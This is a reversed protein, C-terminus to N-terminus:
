SKCRALMFSRMQSFGTMPVNDMEKNWGEVGMEIGWDPAGGQKAEAESAVFEKSLMSASPGAARQNVLKMEKADGAVSIWLSTMTGIKLAVPAYELHGGVCELRLAAFGNRTKGDATAVAVLRGNDTAVKWAGIQTPAVPEARTASIPRAPVAVAAARAAPKTNEIASKVAKAFDLSGDNLAEDYATTKRCGGGVAMVPKSAPLGAANLLGVIRAGRERGAQKDRTLIYGYLNTVQDGCVTPLPFDVQAGDRLLREVVVDNMDSVAHEIPRGGRGFQRSNPNSENINAGAALLKSVLNDYIYESAPGPTSYVCNPLMASLINRDTLGYRRLSEFGAIMADFHIKQAAFQQQELLQRQEPTGSTIIAFNQPYPAYSCFNRIGSIDHMLPNPNQKFKEFVIKQIRLDRQLIDNWDYFWASLPEGGISSPNIGALSAYEVAKAEDGSFVTKLFTVERPFLTPFKEQVLGASAAPVFSVFVVPIVIGCAVRRWVATRNGLWRM